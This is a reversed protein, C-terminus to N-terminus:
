IKIKESNIESDDKNLLYCFADLDNIELINRSIYFEKDKIKLFYSLKDTEESTFIYEPSFYDTDTIKIEVKELLETVNRGDFLDISLIIGLKKDNLLSIEKIIIKRYYYILRQSVMGFLFISGM